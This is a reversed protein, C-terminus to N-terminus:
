RPTAKIGPKFLLGNRSLSNGRQEFSDNLDFDILVTPAPADATAVPV